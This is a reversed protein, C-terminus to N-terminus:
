STTGNDKVEDEKIGKPLKYLGTEDEEHNNDKVEVEEKVDDKVETLLHYAESGCKPCKEFKELKVDGHWRNECIRIFSM